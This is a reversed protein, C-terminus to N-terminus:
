FVLLNFIPRLAGCGEGFSAILPPSCLPSVGFDTPTTFGGGGGGGGAGGLFYIHKKHKKTAKWKVKGKVVVPKKPITYDLNSNSLLQSGHFSCKLWVVPFSFGSMTKSYSHRGPTSSGHNALPSSFAPFAQGSLRGM